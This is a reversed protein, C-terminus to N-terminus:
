MSHLASGRYLYPPPLYYSPYYWPVVPPGRLLFTQGYPQRLVSPPSLDYKLPAFSPENNSQVIAKALGRHSKSKPEETPGESFLNAVTDEAMEISVKDSVNRTLVKDASSLIEKEEGEEEKAM